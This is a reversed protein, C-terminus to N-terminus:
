PRRHSVSCSPSPGLAPQLQSPCCRTCPLRWPLPPGRTSLVELLFPSLSESSGHLSTAPRLDSGGDELSLILADKDLSLHISARLPRRPRCPRPQTTGTGPGPRPGLKRRTPKRMQLASPKRPQQEACGTPPKPHSSLPSAWSNRQSRSWGELLMAM